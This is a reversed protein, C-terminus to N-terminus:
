IKARVPKSSLGTEAEDKKRKAHRVVHSGPASVAGKAYGATREKREWDQLIAFFGTINEIIEHGDERTLRRETRKQWIAITQDILDGEEACPGRGALQCCATKDVDAAAAGNPSHRQHKRTSPM